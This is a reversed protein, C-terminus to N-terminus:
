ASARWGLLVAAKEAEAPELWYRACRVTSGRHGPVTAEERSVTIGRREIESVTSNLVHDHCLREADFRTMRNGRALEALVAHLKTDSKVPKPSPPLTSASSTRQKSDGSGAAPTVTPPSELERRRGNHYDNRCQVSCFRQWPTSPEMPEACQACAALHMEPPTAAIRSSTQIGPRKYISM